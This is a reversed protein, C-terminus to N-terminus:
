SIKVVEYGADAVAKELVSDSVEGSIECYATKKELDFKEKTM